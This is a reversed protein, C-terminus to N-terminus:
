RRCRAPASTARLPAKALQPQGATTGAQGSATGDTGIGAKAGPPVPGGRGGFPGNSPAIFGGGANSGPIGAMAGPPVPGGRGGFPGNSPAIFGGQGNGTTGAPGTTTGAGGTGVTGNGITTGTTNATRPDIEILRITNNPGLQIVFMKGASSSDATNITMINGRITATRNLIGPVPVGNREFSAVVYVGDIMHNPFGTFGNDGVTNGNVVPPTNANGARPLDQGSTPQGATQGNNTQGVTTGQGGTTQGSSGTQALDCSTAILLATSALLSTRIM